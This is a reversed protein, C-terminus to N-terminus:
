VTGTITYYGAAFVPEAPYASADDVNFVYYYNTNVADTRYFWNEDTPSTSNGAWNNLYAEFQGSAFVNGFFRHDSGGLKALARNLRGTDGLSDWIFLRYDTGDATATHVVIESVDRPDSM